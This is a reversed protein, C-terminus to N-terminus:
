VSKVVIWHTGVAYDACAIANSKWFNGRGTWPANLDGNHVSMCVSTITQSVAKVRRREIYVALRNTKGGCQWCSDVGDLEYHPLWENVEALLMMFGSSASSNIKLKIWTMTKGSSLSDLVVQLSDVSALKMRNLHNIAGSLQISNPPGVTLSARERKLRAMM